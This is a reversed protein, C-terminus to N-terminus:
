FALVRTVNFGVRWEDPTFDFPTGGLFQTPNMRPQNTLLLKFFHGGTELEIGFTGSDFELDARRASKIWEAFLSTHQSLYIQGHGGILLLSESTADDIVPNHLLTPVLGIAVNSGFAVNLMLQGYAQSENDDAPVSTQTNWAVGGMAGVMFSTTGSRRDWLRVKANLELNDDLNSRLLGFMVRDTAAVALGFRNYVPGDFGWLADAGDSVAPLFRHSIEFLVEGKALTEATPLNAAQTSHFVTVPIETAQERREFREPREQAAGIAPLFVVSLVGVWAARSM